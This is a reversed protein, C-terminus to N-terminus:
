VRTWFTGPLEEDPNFPIVKGATELAQLITLAYDESIEALSAIESLRQPKGQPMVSLVKEQGSQKDM